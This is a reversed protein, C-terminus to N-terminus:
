PRVNLSRRRVMIWLLGGLTLTSTLPEPTLFTDGTVTYFGAGDPNGRGDLSIDTLVEAFNLVEPNLPVVGTSWTTPPMTDDVHLHQIQVPSQRYSCNLNGNDDTGFFSDACYYQDIGVTGFPQMLPPDMGLSAQDARPAPDIEFTYMIQYDATQSLAVAFPSLPDSQTFTFGGTAPTVEIDDSTDLTAGGTGSSSFTFSFFNQIGVSCGVELNTYSTLTGMVCPQDLPAKQAQLAAGSVLVAASLFRLFSNAPYSHM